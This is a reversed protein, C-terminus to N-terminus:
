PAQRFWRFDFRGMYSRDCGGLDQSWCVAVMDDGLPLTDRLGRPIGAGRGEREEGVRVDGLIRLVMDDGSPLASAPLVCLM